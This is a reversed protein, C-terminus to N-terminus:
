LAGSVHTIAVMERQTLQLEQPYDYEQLVQVVVTHLKIYRDLMDALFNWRTRCDLILTTVTEGVEACKARLFDSKVPSRKIKKVIKRVKIVAANIEGKFIVDHNKGTNPNVEDVCESLEADVSEDGNDLEEDTTVDLQYVESDPKEYLVDCVALHIAHSLCIGHLSLMLSGMRKMISAGDTTCAVIHNWNLGFENLKEEIANKLTVSAQSGFVRAMRLNDYDETGYHLTVTLYRKNNTATYEDTTISM